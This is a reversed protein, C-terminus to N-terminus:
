PLMRAPRFGYIDNRRTKNIGFRDASRADEPGLNWSGGRAVRKGCDGGTWASGDGPAGNYHSNWCDETWEWVNGSMDHLGWANAQKRAVPNIKADSFLSSRYWAVSDVSDSGCYTHTGGARCAYEWEAESPLRYTKGTKQSLKRVYQQADDWSVEEVPCDDGCASFHSPNSGMITRWQGQTVETKGLAFAKAISVSHIPKEFGSQNGGMQFSGAPLIVMEPCEACDKFVKGPRMEAEEKKVAALKTQAASVYRGSPYRDLYGQVTASDKAGSIRQWHDTESRYAEDTELEKLRTQAQVQYRGQPNNAQYQRYAAETNGRQASEWARQDAERAAQEKRAAEQREQEAALKREAEERAAQVKEGDDLKKLELKALAGFKGKPYQKLYVEYYDRTGSAKVENWFATEPDSSAASTPAPSVAPRAGPKLAGIKIRAAAAHRGKPYERLYAEYASLTGLSDAAQWASSDPDTPAQQVNVTTPGQFIFYFEGRLSGEVWPEQKGSTKQTVRHTVKKLMLEVQVGPEGLQALLAETYTGNLGDGDAAVSGPKTAYHILTGSAAEVKALGRSTSRFKRAFPNDRCADLFVLSVGAKAEEMNDLLNGLNLSQLPVDEEFNIDSDIAPFYNQGKFQVGHGAYFVLAVAGPTIKNRFERYVSSIERSKLNERLIVEFGLGELRARMARADNVPNKLPGQTYDSNGIVLAIRKEGTAGVQLNRTDPAAIALSIWLLFLAPLYSWPRM